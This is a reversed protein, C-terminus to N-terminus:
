VLAAVCDDVLQELAGTNDLPPLCDNGKKAELKGICGKEPETGGDFKETVKDVCGGTNPDEPKGPTEAKQRCKLLGSLKKAVCKKKGVGCKTQDIPPPDIGQVLSAVCQRVLAEASVTDDFTVCDNPDKSELKEFCGKEPQDGGDFKAEAKDVCGDANPDTPKDPTEAKQECKLLAGVKKAVCKNKAVLCKSQVAGAPRGALLIMLLGLVVGFLGSGHKAM